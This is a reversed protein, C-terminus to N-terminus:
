GAIGSTNPIVITFRTGQDRVLELRGGLQREVLSVVLGLGMTNTNRIDLGEPMGVGDDSVVLRIRNEPDTSARIDIRGERGGPFAHKM